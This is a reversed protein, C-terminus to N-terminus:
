SPPTIMVRIDAFLLMAFEYICANTLELIKKRRSMAHPVFGLLVFEIEDM